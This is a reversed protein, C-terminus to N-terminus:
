IVDVTTFNEFIIKQLNNKKHSYCLIIRSVTIILIIEYYIHETYTNLSFKSM